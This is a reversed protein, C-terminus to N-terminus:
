TPHADGRTYSDYIGYSVATLPLPPPLGRPAHAPLRITLGADHQGPAGVDALRREEVADGTRAARDHGRRRSRGAVHQAVRRFPQPRLELQDVRAAHVSGAGVRELLGHGHLAGRREVRSGDDHQHGVPPVADDRGVLLDRRVDAPRTTGHNERDVLDVVAPGLLADLLEVAEGDRGDHRDRGLMAEADAIQQVGDHRAQRPPATRPRLRVRVRGRRPPRGVERDGDDPPGVDALRREDVEQQPLFPHEDALDRPRRAVGDVRAEGPVSM